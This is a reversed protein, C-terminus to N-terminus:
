VSLLDVVRDGIESTTIHFAIIVDRVYLASGAFIILVILYKSFPNRVDLYLKDLNLLHSGFFMPRM